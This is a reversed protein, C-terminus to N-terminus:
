GIKAGWQPYGAALDMAIVRRLGQELWFSNRFTKSIVRSISITVVLAPSM